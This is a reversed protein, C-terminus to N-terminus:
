NRAVKFLLKLWSQKCPELIAAVRLLFKNIETSITVKVENSAFIFKELEVSVQKVSYLLMGIMVVALIAGFYDPYNSFRMLLSISPPSVISVFM